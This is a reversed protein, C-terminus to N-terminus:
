IVRSDALFYFFLRANQLLGSLPKKTNAFSRQKSRCLDKM